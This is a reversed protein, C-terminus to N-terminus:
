SLSFSLSSQAKGKNKLTELRFLGISNDM